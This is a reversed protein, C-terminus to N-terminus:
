LGLRGFVEEAEVYKGQRYDELAIATDKLDELDELLQDLEEFFEPSILFAAPKSHRVVMVTKEEELSDITEALNDRLETISATRIIAV